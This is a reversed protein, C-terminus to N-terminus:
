KCVGCSSLVRACVYLRRDTTRSMYRTARFINGPRVIETQIWHTPSSPPLKRQFYYVFVSWLAFHIAIRRVVSEHIVLTSTLDLLNRDTSQICVSKPFLEHKMLIESPFTHRNNESFKISYVVPYFAITYTRIPLVTKLHM